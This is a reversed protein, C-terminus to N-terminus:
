EPFYRSVLNDFIARGNETLDREDSLSPSPKFKMAELRGFILYDDSWQGNHYLMAFTFWAECIDFRNWTM